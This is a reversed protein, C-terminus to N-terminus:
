ALFNTCQHFNTGPFLSKCLGWESLCCAFSDVPGMVSLTSKLSPTLALLGVNTCDLVSLYILHSLMVSISQTVIYVNYALHTCISAFSQIVSLSHTVLYLRPLTHVFSSRPSLTPRQFSTQVAATYALLFEYNRSVLKWTRSMVTSRAARSLSFYAGNSRAELALRLTASINYVSRTIVFGNVGDHLLELLNGVRTGIVPIGCAMAELAPNPTGETSSGVFLYDLKQYFNVMDSHLAHRNERLQEIVTVNHIVSASTYLLDFGKLDRKWPLSTAGVIGVNIFDKLFERNLDSSPTFINCDVGNPTFFMPVGFEVSYRLALQLSNAFTAVGHANVVSAATSLANVEELEHHSSIGFVLKKGNLCPFLPRITNLYFSLVVPDLHSCQAVHFDLIRLVQSTGKLQQRIERARFAHAWSPHDILFTIYTLRAQPLQSMGALSAAPFRAYQVAQGTYSSECLQGNTRILFHSPHLIYFEESSDVLMFSNLRWIWRVPRVQNRAVVLVNLECTDKPHLSVVLNPSRFPLLIDGSKGTLTFCRVDLPSVDSPISDTDVTMCGHQILNQAWMANFIVFVFSFTALIGRLRTNM